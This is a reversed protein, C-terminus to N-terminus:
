HEGCLLGEGLANIDNCVPLQPLEGVHSGRNEMLVGYKRHALFSNGDVPCEKLRKSLCKDTRDADFNGEEDFFIVEAADYWSIM